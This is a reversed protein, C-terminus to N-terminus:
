KRSNFLFTKIFTKLITIEPRVQFSMLLHPNFSGHLSSTLRWAALLVKSMKALFQSLVAVQPQDEKAVGEGALLELVGAVGDESFSHM